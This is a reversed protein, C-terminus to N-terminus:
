QYGFGAQMPYGGGYYQDYGAMPGYGSYAAFSPDYSGPYQGYYNGAAYGGVPMGRGAGRAMGAGGPGRNGGGAKGGGEGHKKLDITRGGITFPNGFKIALKDALHEPLKDKEKDAEPVSDLSDLKIFAIGHCLNEDKKNAVVQFESIKGFPCDPAVAGGIITELNELVKAKEMTNPLNAVFLKKTRSDWNKEKPANRMARPVARRIQLTNEELKRENDPISVLAAITNDTASSSTFTIFAINPKNTKTNDVIKIEKFDASSLRNPCKDILFQQLSENTVTRALNMVMAKSLDECDEALGSKQDAM